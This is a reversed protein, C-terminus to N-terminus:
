YVGVCGGRRGSVGGGGGGGGREKWTAIIANNSSTSGVMAGIEEMKGLIHDTTSPAEAEVARALSVVLVWDNSWSLSNFSKTLTPSNNVGVVVVVM